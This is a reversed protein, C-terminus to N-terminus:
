RTASRPPDGAPTRGLANPAVFSAVPVIVDQITLTDLDVQSLIRPLGLRSRMREPTTAEDFARSDAFETTQLLAGAVAVEFEDRVISQMTHTSAQKQGLTFFAAAVLAALSLLTQPM